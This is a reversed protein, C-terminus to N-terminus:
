DAEKKRALFRRTSFQLTKAAEDDLRKVRLRFISNAQEAQQEHTSAPTERKVRELIEAYIFARRVSLIGRGYIAPDFQVYSMGTRKITPPRDEYVFVGKDGSTPSPIFFDREASGLLISAVEEMSFIPHAGFILAAVGSITPASFSTGSKMVDTGSSKAIVDTGLACLFRKQLTLNILCEDESSKDSGQGPTNSFSSLQNSSDISGAIIFNNEVGAEVLSIIGWNPSQFIDTNSNGASVILLNNKELLHLPNEYFCSSLKKMKYSCNIITDHSFHERLIREKPGGLGSMNHSLFINCVPAIQQIVSVVAISHESRAEEGQTGFIVRPPIITRSSLPEFVLVHANRGLCSERHSWELAGSFEHTSPFRRLFNKMNRQGLIKQRVEHAHSYLAKSYLSEENKLKEEAAKYETRADELVAEQTGRYEQVANIHAFEHRSYSYKEAADKYHRDSPNRQISRMQVYAEEESKNNKLFSEIEKEQLKEALKIEKESVKAGNEILFRVAGLDLSEIALSLATEGKNNKINPDAGHDLLFTVVVRPSALVAVMLATSGDYARANIRVGQNVVSEIGPIDDELVAEILADAPMDAQADAQSTFAAFCSSFGLILFFFFTKMM